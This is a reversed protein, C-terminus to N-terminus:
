RLGVWGSWCSECPFGSRGLFFPGSGGPALEVAWLDIHPWETRNMLIGRLNSATTWASLEVDTNGLGMEHLPITLMVIKNAKKTMTTNSQMAM